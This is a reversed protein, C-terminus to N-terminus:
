PTSALRGVRSAKRRQACSCPTQWRRSVGSSSKGGWVNFADNFEFRLYGDLVKINGDGDRETNFTAGITKNLQGNIYLRVSDLSTDFTGSGDPAGHSDQIISGGYAYAHAEVLQEPTAGPFRSLLLPKISTDWASDIIAEHTLVSYSSAPSAAVLLLAGSLLVFQFKRLRM